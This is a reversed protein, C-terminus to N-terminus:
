IEKLARLRISIKQCEALLIEARHIDKQKEALTIEKMLEAFKNKLIDEELNRLLEEEEREDSKGMEVEFVLEQRVMEMDKEIAEYTDGLIKKIKKILEPDNKSFALAFIKRTILDEKPLPVPIAEPKKIEKKKIKRVDEWIAEESIGTKEKILTIFHSKQMESEISAIVPLVKDTIAKSLKRKETTKLIQNLEFEVIPTANKLVERWENKDKLILDAPDKEGPVDAVKVDMGLGLAMLAARYAANKGATDSDFAILVNPSFRRLMTLMHETLATGSVAVTNTIGAQHSMILDMQGEVLITYNKKKIDIKAKDLAYITTGKDYLVTDPSNLYKAQEKDDVFIRGTFAIVRGSSDSIPFMIRGRFRDYYGKETKKILGVKEIDSVQYKKLHDHVVRWEDPAWGIRFDKITEDTLGRAHLYDRVKPEKALNKEYFATAEEMIQYLDSKNDKTQSFTLEVGAKEALMKLSGMFDLGEFQQVFSFIDGKAGCGFCYYTGREPSIFFSPTKENHFPCRAKYTNGANILTVYSSLVDVINLKQKIQEVPTM